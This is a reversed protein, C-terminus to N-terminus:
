LASPPEQPCVCCTVPSVLTSLFIDVKLPFSQKTVNITRIFHFFPLM